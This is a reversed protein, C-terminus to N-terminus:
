TTDYVLYEAEGFAVVVDHTYEDQTVVDVVRAPPLRAHAARLVDELTRQEEVFREIEARREPGLEPGRAPTTLELRLPM